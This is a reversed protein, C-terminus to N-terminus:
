RSTTLPSRRSPRTDMPSKTLALSSFVSNSARTNRSMARPAISVRAQRRSSASAAAGSVDNGTAGSPADILHIAHGALSARLFRVLQPEDEIALIVVESTM